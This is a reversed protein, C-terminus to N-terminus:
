SVQECIMKKLAWDNRLYTDEAGSTPKGDAFLIARRRLYAEDPLLEYMSPFKVFM